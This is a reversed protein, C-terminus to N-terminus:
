RCTNTRSRALPLVAVAARVTVTISSTGDGSQPMVGRYRWPDRSTVSSGVDALSVVHCERRTGSCSDGFTVIRDSRAFQRRAADHETPVRNLFDETATAHRGDIEGLVLLGFPEYCQFKEIGLQGSVGAVDFPKTALSACRSANAAIM